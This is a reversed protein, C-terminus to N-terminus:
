RYGTPDIMVELLAPKRSEVATQIAVDCESKNQIRAFALGFAAAIREYDPNAFETGFVQMNKRKQAFRILDLASDNMVVVIVPLDLEILLALEGMMMALGADGTICVTPARTVRAAAIASTLGFGMVSLGNSVFFTNPRLAKWHLCTFIKHSGVDTTVITEPPTHARISDLVDFPFIRNPAPDSAPKPHHAARWSAVQKEGWGGDLSPTADLLADITDCINGVLECVSDLRPDQNEWNSIWIL